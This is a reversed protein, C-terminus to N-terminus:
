DDRLRFRRRRRTQPRFRLCSSVRGEPVLFYAPVVERFVEVHQKGGKGVQPVLTRGLKQACNVRAAGRLRPFAAHLFGPGLRLGACRRSRCISRCAPLAVRPPGGASGGAERRAGLLHQSGPVAEAATAAAARRRGSAAAGARAGRGSRGAHAPGTQAAARRPHQM